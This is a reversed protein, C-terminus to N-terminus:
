IEGTYRQYCNKGDPEEQEYSKPEGDLTCRHTILEGIIKQVKSCRLCLKRTQYCNFCLHKDETKIGGFGDSEPFQLGCKTCKNGNKPQEKPRPLLEPNVKSVFENLPMNLDGGIDGFAPGRPEFLSTNRAASVTRPNDSGHLYILCVKILAKRFESAFELSGFPGVVNKPDIINHEEMFDELLMYENDLVIRKNIYGIFYGTQM